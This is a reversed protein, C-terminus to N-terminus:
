GARVAAVLCLVCLIWNKTIVYMTPHSNLLRRPPSPCASCCSPVVCMAQSHDTAISSLEQTPQPVCQLMFACCVHVKEAVLLIPPSLRASCCLLLVCPIECCPKLYKNLELVCQLVSIFPCLNCTM